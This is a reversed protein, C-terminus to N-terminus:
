ERCGAPSSFDSPRHKWPLVERVSKYKCGRSQLLPVGGAPHFSCAMHTLQAYDALPPMRLSIAAM